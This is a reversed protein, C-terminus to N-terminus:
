HHHHKRHKMKQVRKLAQAISQLPHEARQEVDSEEKEVSTAKEDEEKEEEKKEEM